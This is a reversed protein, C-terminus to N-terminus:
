RRHHHHHHRHDARDYVYGGLMTGTFGAIAMTATSDYYYNRPLLTERVVVVPPVPRTVIVQQPPLPAATVYIPQTQVVPLPAAATQVTTNPLTYIQQKINNNDDMIIITDAQAYNVNLACLLSLFLIKRMKKIGGCCIYYNQKATFELIYIYM